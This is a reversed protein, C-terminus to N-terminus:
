HYSGLHYLSSFSAFWLIAVPARYILLNLCKLLSNIDISFSSYLISCFFIVMLTAVELLFFFLDISIVHFWPGSGNRRKVNSQSICLCFIYINKVHDFLNVKLRSSLLTLCFSHAIAEINSPLNDSLNAQLFFASLLQTIQDENLTM